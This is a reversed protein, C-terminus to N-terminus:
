VNFTSVKKLIKKTFNNTPVFPFFELPRITNNKNDFSVAITEETKVM